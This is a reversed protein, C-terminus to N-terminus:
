AVIHVRAGLRAVRLLRRLDREGGRLCGLTSASAATAGSAGHVALRDGGTWGQLLNPQHGSLALICCGYPAWGKIGDTVAFWGTPTPTQPGGIGVRMRLVTRGDERVRLTQESLDIHLRVPEEVLRVHDLHVWGVAGNPRETAIVGLWKGRRRLVPMVRVSGFETRPGIRAVVRGEPADRLTAARLVRAGVDAGDPLPTRVATQAARPPLPTLVPQVLGDPSTGAGAVAAGLAALLSQAGIM